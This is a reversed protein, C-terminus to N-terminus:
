KLNLGHGALQIEGSHISKGNVLNQYTPYKRLYDDVKLFPRDKIMSFIINKQDILKLAHELNQKLLQACDFPSLGAQENMADTYGIEKALDDFSTKLTEIQVLFHFIEDEIKDRVEKIQPYAMFNDAIFKSAREKAINVCKVAIDQNM